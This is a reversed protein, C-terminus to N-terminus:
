VKTVEHFVEAICDSIIRKFATPNKFCDVHSYDVDSLKQTFENLHFCSINKCYDDQDIMFRKDFPNSLFVNRLVTQVQGNNYSTRGIKGSFNIIILDNKNLDDYVKTFIHKIIDQMRTLDSSSFFFRIKQEIDEKKRTLAGDLDIFDGTELFIFTLLYLWGEWLEENLLNNSSYPLFLKEEFTMIIDMPSIHMVNEASDSLTLKIIDDHESFAKKLYKKFNYLSSPILAPLSNANLIENFRDINIGVMGNYAGDAAKLEILIGVIELINDKEVYIGSGSLGIINTHAKKEFTFLSNLSTLEFSENNDLGVECRILQRPEPKDILRHPFGYICVEDRYKIKSVNIDLIFESFIIKLVAIDLNEHIYCNLVRLQNFSNDANFVMLKIKECSISNDINIAKEICHKATFVYCFEESQPKFLCGSGYDEDNCVIKVVSSRYLKEISM